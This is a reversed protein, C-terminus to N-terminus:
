SGALATTYRVENRQQLGEPETAMRTLHKLAQRDIQPRREQPNREGYHRTGVSWSFPLWDTPERFTTVHERTESHADAWGAEASCTTCGGTPRSPAPTRTV